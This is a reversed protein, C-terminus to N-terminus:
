DRNEALNVQASIVRLRPWATLWGKEKIRNEFLARKKIGFASTPSLKLGFLDDLGFPAAIECEDLMTRRAAVATATEPWHRMADTASTYPTDRNRRHMRAQNKVSWCDDPELTRLVAEYKRDEAADIRVADFWLV